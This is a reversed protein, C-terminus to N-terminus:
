DVGSDCQKISIESLPHAHRRNALLALNLNPM